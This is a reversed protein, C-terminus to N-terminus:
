PSDQKWRHKMRLKHDKHSNKRGSIDRERTNSNGVRKKEDRGRAEKRQELSIEIETHSYCKKDSVELTEQQGNLSSKRFILM